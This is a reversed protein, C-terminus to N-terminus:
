RIYRKRSQQATQQLAPVQSRQSWFAEHEWWAMKIRTTNCDTMNAPPAPLIIKSSLPSPKELHVSPANFSCHLFHHTAITILNVTCTPTNCSYSSCSLITSEQSLFASVMCLCLLLTYNNAECRPVCGSGDVIHAESLDASHAAVSSEHLLAARFHSPCMETGRTM